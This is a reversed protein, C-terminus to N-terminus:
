NRTVPRPFDSWQQMAQADSNWLGKKQEMARAQLETLQNKLDAAAPTYKTTVAYGASVMLSNILQGNQTFALAPTRGYKDKQDLEGQLRVQGNNGLLTVLHQSAAKGLALLRNAELQTREIDKFFKPNPVQEPADIGILQIRTQEGNILVLLTDGDEVAILSYHSDAILHTSSFILLAILLKLFLPKM